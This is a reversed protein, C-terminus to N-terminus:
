NRMPDPKVPDPTAEPKMTGPKMADSNAPDNKMGWKMADPHAKMIRACGADKMMAEHSIVKCNTWVKKDADSLKMPAPAATKTDSAMPTQALAPGGGFAIMVAGLLAVNAYNM